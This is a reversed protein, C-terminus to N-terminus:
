FKTNLQRLDERNWFFMKKRQFVKRATPSRPDFGRRSAARGHAKAEPGFWVYKM